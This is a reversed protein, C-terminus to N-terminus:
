TKRGKLGMQMTYDKDFLVIKIPKTPVWRSGRVGDLNSVMVNAVDVEGHWIPVMPLHNPFGLCNWFNLKKEPGEEFPFDERGFIQLLPSDITGRM